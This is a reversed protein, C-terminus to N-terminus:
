IFDSNECTVDDDEMWSELMNLGYKFQSEKTPEGAETACLWCITAMYWKLTEQDVLTCQSLLHPLKLEPYRNNLLRAFEPLYFYNSYVAYSSRMYCRYYRHINLKREVGIALSQTYLEHMTQDLMKQVQVTIKKTQFLHDIMNSLQQYTRSVARMLMEELDPDM